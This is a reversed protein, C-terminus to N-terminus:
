CRFRAELFLPHRAGVTMKKRTIDPMDSVAAMLSFKKELKRTISSAIQMPKEFRLLAEAKGNAIIHDCAVV